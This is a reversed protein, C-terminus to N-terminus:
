GHAVEGRVDARRSLPLDVVFRAGLGPVSEARITGGHHTVIRECIALGLGHGAYQSRGHLREFPRFIREAQGPDFGIGDDEVTIRASSDVCEGRVVVKPAQGPRRFKLANSILNQLLEYMQSRDAEVRPLGGIEVTGGSEAVRDELDTLVDRLSAELDVPEMKSPTATVHSLRLLADILGSMRSSASQMRELYDRSKADLAPGAHSKLLDGFSLIKNLPERLDHSAAYAFLKLQESETEARALEIRKQILTEVARRHATVDRAILVYALIENGQGRMAATRVNLVVPGAASGLTVEYDRRSEGPFFAPDLERITRGIISAESRALLREAAPNAVRVFGEADLVLLADSMSDTIQKAAFEPTIDILHYRRIAVATLVVFGLVAAYGFPYIRHGYAPLFDVASASGVLLAGLLLGLRKKMRSSHAARFKAVLVAASVAMAVVFFVIFHVSLPGFKSYYGWPYEYVGAIFSNGVAVRLAFWASVGFSVAAVPSWSRFRDTVALAFALMLTPLFVVSLGKVRAWQLAIPSVASSFVGAYSLLWSAAFVTLLLFAFSASSRKERFFVLTGLLGILIGVAIPPYIYPNHFYNGAHFM